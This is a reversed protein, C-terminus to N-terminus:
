GSFALYNATKGYRASLRGPYRISPRLDLDAAAAYDIESSVGVAQSSSEDGSARFAAGVAGAIHMASELISFVCAHTDTQTAIMHFVDRLQQNTNHKTNVQM